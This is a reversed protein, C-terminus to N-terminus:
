PSVEPDIRDALDRLARAWRAAYRDDVYDADRRIERLRDALDVTRREGGSLLDYATGHADAWATGRRLVPTESWDVLDGWPTGAEPPTPLSRGAPHEYYETASGPDPGVPLVVVEYREGGTTSGCVECPRHSLASTEPHPVVLLYETTPWREVIRARHEAEEALSWDSNPLDRDLLVACDACADIGFGYSPASV